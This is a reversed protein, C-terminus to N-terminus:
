DEQFYNEYLSTFFEREDDAFESAEVTVNSTQYDTVVVDTLHPCISTFKRGRREIVNTKVTFGVAVTFEEDKRYEIWVRKVDGDEPMTVDNITVNNFKEALISNIVENLNMPTTKM